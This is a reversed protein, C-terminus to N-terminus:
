EEGEMESYTHQLQKITQRVVNKLKKDNSKKQQSIYLKNIKDHCKKHLPIKVNFKPKLCKPIGHHKTIDIILKKGCFLCKDTELIINM